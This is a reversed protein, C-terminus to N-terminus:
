VKQVLKESSVNVKYNYINIPTKDLEMFLEKQTTDPEFDAAVALLNGNEDLADNPVEFGDKDFWKVPKWEVVIKGVKDKDGLFVQSHQAHIRGEITGQIEGTLKDYFIIM